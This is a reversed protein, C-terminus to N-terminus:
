NGIIRDYADLADYVFDYLLRKNESKLLIKNRRIDYKVAYARPTCMKVVGEGTALPVIVRSEADKADVVHVETVVGSSDRLRELHYRIATFVFRNKKKVVIESSFDFSEATSALMATTPTRMQFQVAFTSDCQSM